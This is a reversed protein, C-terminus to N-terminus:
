RGIPGIGEAEARALVVDCYRPEIELGYCVRGTRHAAILTTGSGLFPDYVSAAGTTDLAREPLAVPFPAPHSGDRNAAPIDWVDGCGSASKSDLRFSEKAFIVVWECAPRYHTPAFNIGAGSNWIVVQRIPLDPNWLFPTILHGAQVRPRYNYFIAGDATLVHEWTHLLVNAQWAFYDEQPMDDSHSLYGNALDAGPWMGGRAPFGGGTTTGLNYPPSTFCLAARKGDMLRAVEDACTSDGCLLRHPGIQWLDGPQVRTPGAQPTADFEDGGGGPLPVVPPSTVALGDLLRQVAADGTSVDALLDALLASDTAALAGVPDLTSLIYLEEEPSVAIDIVPATTQQAEGAGTMRNHGDLTYGTIINQLLPLVWGVESIIGKVAETQARPHIKPNRPHPTLQDLPYAPHYAVIRNQWVAPATVAGVM